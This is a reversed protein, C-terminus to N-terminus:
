SGQRRDVYIARSVEVRDGPGYGHVAFEANGQFDKELEGRGPRSGSPTLVLLDTGAHGVHDTGLVSWPISGARAELTCGATVFPMLVNNLVVGEDFGLAVGEALLSSRDLRLRVRGTGAQTAALIRYMRSRFDNHVRITKGQLRAASRDIGQVVVADTERDVAVIAGYLSSSHIALSYQLAGATRSDQYFLADTETGGSVRIKAGAPNFLVTDIRDDMIIRLGMVDAAAPEVSVAEIRKIFGSGRYPEIVHVFRSALPNSGERHTFMFRLRYAQPELPPRGDAFSLTTGAPALGWLRLHVDEADGLQYDVVYPGDPKGSTVDTMFCFPHIGQVAGRINTTEGYRGSESAMTGPKPGLAVGTVAIHKAMPGHFGVHHERGGFADMVDLVYWRTEDVNVLACTRTAHRGTAQKDRSRACAVTVTPTEHLYALHAPGDGEVSRDFTITNHLLSHREFSNPLAHDTSGIYPLEPLLDLGHGFLGITFRDAHRHDGGIGGRYNLWLVREDQRLGSEVKGGRILVVGHDDLLSTTERRELATRALRRIEDDQPQDFLEHHMAGDLSAQDDILRALVADPKARFLKCLVSPYALTALQENIQTPVLNHGTWLRKGHGDGLAPHYRGLCVLDTLFDVHRRVRPHLLINPFREEDFRDPHLRRLKEVLEGFDVLSLVISGYDVSSDTSGNPHMLNGLYRKPLSWVSENMDQDYYLSRIMEFSDPYRGSDLDDLCLAVAALGAEYSGPNGRIARDIVAQAMTRLLGEEIFWRVAESTEAEIAKHHLFDLLPKDLGIADFISDYCRAFISLDAASSVITGSGISYPPRFARDRKDHGNPYEQAIRCLLLAAKHAYIPDGTLAYARGLADAAPCIHRVYVEHCYHRIFRPTERGAERQAARQVAEDNTADLREPYWEGGVGCQVQYPHAFPDIMWTAAPAEVPRGHKPCGREDDSIREARPIRSSPMLRWIEEDTRDTYQRAAQLVSDAEDRAWAFRHLNARAANNEVDTFMTRSRKVPAAPRGMPRVLPNWGVPREEASEDTLYVADVFLCPQDARESELSLVHTGASLRFTGVEVWKLLSHVGRLRRIATANLLQRTTGWEVRHRSPGCEVTIRNVGAGFDVVRAFVRYAGGASVQVDHWIRHGTSVTAAAAGGLFAGTGIIAADVRPVQWRDYAVWTWGSTVPANWQDQTSVMGWFQEVQLLLRHPTQLTPASGSPTRPLLLGQLRLRGAIAAGTALAGFGLVKLVTRRDSM